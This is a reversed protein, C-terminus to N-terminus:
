PSPPNEIKPLTNNKPYINIKNFGKIQTNIEVWGHKKSNLYIWGYIYKKTTSFTNLYNLEYVLNDIFLIIMININFIKVIM